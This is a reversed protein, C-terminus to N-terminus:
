AHRHAKRENGESLSELRVGIVLWRRARVMSKRWDCPPSQRASIISEPKELRPAERRLFKPITQIRLRSSRGRALRHQNTLRNQESATYPGPRAGGGHMSRTTFILKWGHVPLPCSSVPPLDWARCIGTLVRLPSKSSYLDGFAVRKSSRVLLSAVSVVRFNSGCTIM